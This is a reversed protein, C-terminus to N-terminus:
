VLVIARNGSMELTGSSIPFTEEESNEKKVTIVGKKLPSIIPAHEALLTMEGDVGPLTVSIVEGEFLAMDVRSITLNLLKM